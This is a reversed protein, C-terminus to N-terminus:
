TQHASVHGSYTMKVIMPALNFDCIYILMDTHEMQARLKQISQSLLKMQYMKLFELDLDLILNMNFDSFVCQCTIRRQSFPLKIIITILTRITILIRILVFWRATAMTNTWGDTQRPRAHIAMM